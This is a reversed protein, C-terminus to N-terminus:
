TRRFVFSAGATGEPTCTSSGGLSQQARCNTQPQGTQAEFGAGYVVDWRKAETLQVLVNKRDTLGAPNQVAVNAENFLALNYYRRQMEVLASQNLPDNPKLLLQKDVLNQRTNKVGSVLVRDVFVQEGATVQFSIDTRSPDDKRIQQKVEVRAQNSGTRFTTSCCLM